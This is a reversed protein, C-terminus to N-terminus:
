FVVFFVILGLIMLGCIGVVGIALLTFVWAPLPASEQVATEPAPTVQPEHDGGAMADIQQEIERLQAAISAKPAEELGPIEKPDLVVGARIMWRNPTEQPIPDTRHVDCTTLDVKNGDGQGLGLGLWYHPGFELECVERGSPYEIAGCNVDIEVGFVAVTSANHLFACVRGDASCAIHSKQGGKMKLFLTPESEDPRIRYIGVDTGILWWGLASWCVCNPNEPIPIRRGDEYVLDGGVLWALADDGNVAVAHVGPASIRDVVEFASGVVLGGAHMAAWKGKGNLVLRTPEVGLDIAVIAEGSDGDVFALMGNALACVVANAMHRIARVEAGFKLWRPVKGDTSSSVIVENGRTSSLFFDDTGYAFAGAM